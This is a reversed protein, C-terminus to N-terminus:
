LRTNITFVDGGGKEITGDSHIIQNIFPDDLRLGIFSITKEDQSM